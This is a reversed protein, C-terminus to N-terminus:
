RPLRANPVLELECNEGDFTATFYELFGQYGLIVMEDEPRAFRCCLVDTTWRVQDEGDSLALTVEAASVAVNGGAFADVGPGSTAVTTVGLEDVLRAPLITNDAGTDVLGYHSSSLNPGIIRIPVEPRHVLDPEGDVPSRSISALYAFRM